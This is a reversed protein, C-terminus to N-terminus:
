NLVLISVTLYTAFLTWLFYPINIYAAIPSIKKFKLIMWALLTVLIVIVAVALRLSEFRFFVISWLFNVFLQAAYIILANKKVALAAKSSYILYASLGMLAYLLTWVVPFLWGPPSLAPKVLTDYFESMDGSLLASLVGVLEASFIFILLECLNIKKM